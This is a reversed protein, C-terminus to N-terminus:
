GAGRAKHDHVGPPGHDSTQAATDHGASAPAPHDHHVIAQWAPPQADHSKKEELLARLHKAALNKNAQASAPRKKKDVRPPKAAPTRTIRTRTATKRAKAIIPKRAASFATSKKAAVTSRKLKTSKKAVGGRAPAAARKPKKSAAPKRKALSKKKVSKRAIKRTAVKARPQKRITAM